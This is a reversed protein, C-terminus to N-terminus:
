KIERHLTIRRLFKNYKKLELRASTNKRNQPVVVTAQVDVRTCSLPHDTWNIAAILSHNRREDAAYAAMCLLTDATATTGVKQTVYRSPTGGEQRAETCELTVICRVGKKKAMSTVQRPASVAPKTPAAFALKLRSGWMANVLAAM